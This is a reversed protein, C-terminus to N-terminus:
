LLGNLYRSTVDLFHPQFALSPPLHTHTVDQAMHRTSSLQLMGTWDPGVVTLPPAEQAACCTECQAIHLQSKIRWMLVDKSPQSRIQKKFYLTERTEFSHAINPLRVLSLDIRYAILSEARTSSCLRENECKFVCLSWSRDFRKWVMWGLQTVWCVRKKCESWCSDQAEVRCGVTSRM